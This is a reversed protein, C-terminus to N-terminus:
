SLPKINIERLYSSLKSRAFQSCRYCTFELGQQTSTPNILVQPLRVKAQDHHNKFSCSHCILTAPPVESHYGADTPKRSIASHKPLRIVIKNFFHSHGFLLIPNSIRPTKFKLAFGIILWNKPEGTSAVVAVDIMEEIKWRVIRVMELSFSVVKGWWIFYYRYVRYRVM